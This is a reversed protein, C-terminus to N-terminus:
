DNLGGQIEFEVAMMLVHTDIFRSAAIRGYTEAAGNFGRLALNQAQKSAQDYLAVSRAALAALEDGKPEFMSLQNM